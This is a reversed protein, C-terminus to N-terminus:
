LMKKLCKIQTKYREIDSTSEVYITDMGIDRAGLIDNSFSDGIMLCEKVPIDGMAYYFAEPNPKVFLDGGVVNDFYKLMNLLALRRRLCLGFFNSLVVLQYSDQLSDLLSYIEKPCDNIILNEAHLIYYVFMYEKIPLNTMAKVYDTYWTILYRDYYKEYDQMARVCKDLDDENYSVDFAELMKRVPEKFDILPILTGDFDFIIKKKNDLKKMNGGELYFFYGYVYPRNIDRYWRIEHNSM